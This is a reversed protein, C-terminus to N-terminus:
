LMEANLQKAILDSMSCTSAQSKNTQALRRPYSALFSSRVRRSRSSLYLDQIGHNSASVRALRRIVRSDGTLQECSASSSTTIHRLCSCCCFVAMSVARTAGPVLIPRDGLKIVLENQLRNSCVGVTVSGVIHRRHAITSIEARRRVTVGSACKLRPANLDLTWVYYALLRLDFNIDLTALIITVTLFPTLDSHHLFRFVIM